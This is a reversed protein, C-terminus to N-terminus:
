TLKKYKQAEGKEGEVEKWKRLMQLSSEGNMVFSSNGYQSSSQIDFESLNYICWARRMAKKAGIMKIIKLDEKL